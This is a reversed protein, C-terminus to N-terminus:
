FFNSNVSFYIGAEQLSNKDTEISTLPIGWDLRANFRDGMALNLGVGLAPLTAHAIEVDDSNWVTGLDFFPVVQLLGDFKRFRLIPIRLETSVFLGNDGLSLDQRYGRISNVGGIRFQELPVLSGESLQIDGRLLLLFDEDLRRTWQSQGRWSVFTSDPEGNNNITSNFADVGLSFQSRLAFVEQENRKIFEQFLRVASIRAEGEENAGRSLFFKDNMLFTESESRTLSVGLAFEQTPKLLIPQRLSLEYYRSKSEIEIATFPDEIVHNSNGGVVAKITGNKSNVPFGYALDFGNSGKTNAYEWNFHDGFGLLNGHNIGISRQNTGVSPSRSNNFNTSVNFADAEKITIELLNTGPRIGASLEASVNDILPDLRLLQLASLLSNVNLPKGATEIRASIYDTSLRKTGVVKIEELKGELVTIQVTGDNLKQPPIYAGSSVYGQDTYLKTITSRAQFLEPLTLPRKLYSKVTQNLESQSFITSGVVDFKKVVIQRPIQQDSAITTKHNIPTQANLPKLGLLCLYLVIALFFSASLNVRLFQNLSLKSSLNSTLM